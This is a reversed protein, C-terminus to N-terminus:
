ICFDHLRPYGPSVSEGACLTTAICLLSIAECVSLHM